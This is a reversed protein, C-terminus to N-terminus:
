PQHKFNLKDLAERAVRAVETDEDHSASELASKINDNVIGAEGLANAIKERVLPEPDDLLPLLTESLSAAMIPWKAFANAIAERVEAREHDILKKLRPQLGEIVTEHPLDTEVLANVVAAIMLAHTESEDLFSFLVPIALNTRTSKLRVLARSSEFRVDPDTDALLSVLQSEAMETAPSGANGLQKAAMARITADTDNLAHSAWQAKENPSCLSGIAQLARLREEPEAAM